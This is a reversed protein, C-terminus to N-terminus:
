FNIDRLPTDHGQLDSHNIALSVQLTMMNDFRCSRVRQILEVFKSRDVTDIREVTGPRNLAFIPLMYILPTAAM